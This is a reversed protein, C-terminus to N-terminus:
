GLPPLMRGTRYHEEIAQQVHQGVTSDDALV